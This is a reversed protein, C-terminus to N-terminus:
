QLNLIIEFKCLWEVSSYQRRKEILNDPSNTHPLSLIQLLNENLGSIEDEHAILWGRLLTPSDKRLLPLLHPLHNITNHPLNVLLMDFKGVFREDNKLDLADAVGAFHSQGLNIINQFMEEKVEIGFRTLNKSFLKIADPNLDSALFGDIIDLRDLLHVIAPGVGCYPDAVNIPRGLIASLKRASEVNQEREGQLKSSYYARTPDTIILCGFEKVVIETSLLEHRTEEDLELIKSKDIIIEEYRAALPELKRIRFEGIVGHDRFVARIKKHHTLKALAIEQSYDSIERVSKFILIDGLPEQANPWIGDHKKIIEEDLYKPLYEIWKQPTRGPQEAMVVDYELFAPPLNEPSYSGLPILNYEDNNLIRLGSPAWSYNNILGLVLQTERKPVRLHRMVRSPGLLM